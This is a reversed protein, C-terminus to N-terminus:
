RIVRACPPNRKIPLTTHDCPRACSDRRLAAAKPHPLRPRFEPRLMGCTRGPGDVLFVRKEQPMPDLHRAKGGRM